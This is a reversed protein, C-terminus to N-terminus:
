DVIQWWFFGRHVKKSGGVKEFFCMRSGGILPLVADRIAVAYEGATGAVM